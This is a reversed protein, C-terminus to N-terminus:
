LEEWLKRIKVKLDNKHGNNLIITLKEKIQDEVSPQNAMRALADQESLGRGKLREITTDKPAKLVWVCDAKDIYSAQTLIAMEVFVAKVGKKEYGRLLEEILENVRPHILSNLKLLAERNNFVIKALKPRDLTGDPMLIDPGFAKVTDLFGPTGPEMLKRALQDSDIIEAGLEKLYAAATSKGSGIGGTLIITKMCYLRVSSYM